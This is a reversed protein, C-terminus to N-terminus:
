HLMNVFLFIVTLNSDIWKKYYKYRYVLYSIAWYQVKVLNTSFMFFSKIHWSGIFQIFSFSVKRWTLWNIRWRVVTRLSFYPPLSSLFHLYIFPQTFMDFEDFCVSISICCQVWSMQCLFIRLFEGIFYNWLNAKGIVFPKLLWSQVHLIKIRHHEKYISHYYPRYCRALPLILVERRRRNLWWM